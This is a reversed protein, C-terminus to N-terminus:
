GGKMLLARTLLGTLPPLFFCTTMRLLTLKWGIIGIEMPFRLLSLLSMSVLYTVLVAPSAGARALSAVIPLGIPGAGPTLIGAIWGIGIGKWGASDSLWASVLEKSMLVEMCGMILLIVVMMPIFTGVQSWAARLAAEQQGRSWVLALLVASIVFLSILASKM